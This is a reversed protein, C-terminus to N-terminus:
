KIKITFANQAIYWVVAIIAAGVYWIVGDRGKTESKTTSLEELKKEAGEKWEEIANVRGNTKTTQILIAQNQDIMKDLKKQIQVDQARFAEILFKATENDM